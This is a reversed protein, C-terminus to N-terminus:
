TILNKLKSTWSSSNIKELGEFHVTKDNFIEVFRYFGRTNIQDSDIFQATEIIRISGIPRSIEKGDTQVIPVEGSMWFSRQGRKLFPYAKGIEPNEPLCEEM